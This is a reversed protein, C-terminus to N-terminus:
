AGYATARGKQLGAAAHLVCSSPRFFVCARSHGPSGASVALRRSEAELRWVGAGLEAELPHSEWPANMRNHM